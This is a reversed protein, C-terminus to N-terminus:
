AVSRRQSPAFAPEGAARPRPHLEGALLSAYLDRYDAAMRRASFYGEAAARCAPRSLEDVRGIADVFDADTQCLLGTVGPRIIEPAAGRPSALVPTGCALAEIMVMGFPERWRIPNLLAIADGLLRAKTTADVEGVYDVGPGLRPRVVDRFFALEREEQMKAAIVLPVGARRAVEIARDVGKEPAIRGLFLLHGGSGTGHPFATADIGHHIVRTPRFGRAERAHSHSLAVSAAWPSEAFLLNTERDFRNHHTVVVPVEAHKGLVALGGTTHDHIVDCDALARYAHAVHFLEPATWNMRDRQAEDYVWRRTVPCTSEGVSFLVVQDGATALARALTDIVAETGGYRAPPVAVWPPAILGIRV